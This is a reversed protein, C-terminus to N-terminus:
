QERQRALSRLMMQMGKEMIEKYVAKTRETENATKFLPRRFRSLLDPDYHACYSAWETYDTETLVVWQGEDKSFFEDGIELAEGAELDRYTM